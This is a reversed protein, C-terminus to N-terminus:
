EYIFPYIVQEYFEKGAIASPHPDFWKSDSQHNYGIYRNDIDINERIWESMGGWELKPYIIVGDKETSWKSPNEEIQWCNAQILDQQEKSEFWHIPLERLKERYEDNLESDKWQAWGIYQFTKVERQELLTTITKVQQIWKDLFLFIANPNYVVNEYEEDTEWELRRTLASWQIVAISKSPVTIATELIGQNSNSNRGYNVFDFDKDLTDEVGIYFGNNINETFSCGHTTLTKM